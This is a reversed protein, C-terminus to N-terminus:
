QISPSPTSSSSCARRLRAVCAPPSARGSSQCLAQEVCPSKLDTHSFLDRPLLHESLAGSAGCTFYENATNAIWGGEFLPAWDPLVKDFIIRLSSTEGRTLVCLTCGHVTRLEVLLEKLAAIRAEGGMMFERVARRLLADGEDGGGFSMREVISGRMPTKIPDPIGQADCWESFPECYPPWGALIKYLHQSTVTCDWDFVIVPGGGTVAAAPQEIKCEEASGLGEAVVRLRNCKQDHCVQVLTSDVTAPPPASRSHPSEGDVATITTTAPQLASPVDEVAETPGDAASPAAAVVPAPAPPPPFM